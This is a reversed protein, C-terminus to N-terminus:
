LKAPDMVFDRLTWDLLAIQEDPSLSQKSAARFTVGDMLLRLRDVLQDESLARDNLEGRNVADVILERVRTRWLKLEDAVADSLKADGISYGWFSVEIIALKMRGSDLPLCAALYERLAPLGQMDTDVVYKFVERHALRLSHEMIASKDAFYHALVGASVGAQSAIDRITVSATGRQLIIPWVSRAIHDRKEDHNTTKPM